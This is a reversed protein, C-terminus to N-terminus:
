ILSFFLCFCCLTSQELGIESAELENVEKIEYFRRHKQRARVVARDLRFDDGESGAEGGIVDDTGGNVDVSAVYDDRGVSEVFNREGSRHLGEVSLPHPCGYNFFV